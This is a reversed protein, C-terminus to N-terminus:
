THKVFEVSTGLTLLRLRLRIWKPIEPPFTKIQFECGRYLIVFFRKLNINILLQVFLQNCYFAEKWYSILFKTM